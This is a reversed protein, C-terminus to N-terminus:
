RGAPGRTSCTTAPSGPRADLPAGAHELHGPWGADLGVRAARARRPARLGRGAVATRGTRRGAPRRRPQGPGARRARARARDRGPRGGVGQRDRRPGPRHGAPVPAARDTWGSRAGRTWTPPRPGRCTSWRRHRRSSASTATTASSCWRHPRAATSWAVPAAAAECAVEVAAVLLPDVDVWRGPRRNARTLDSDDRFRSCTADIDAVVREALALAEALADARRVALYGYTGFADFRAADASRDDRDRGAARHPHRSPTRTGTSPGPPAAVRAPAAPAAPAAALRCGGSRVASSDRPSTGHGDDADVQTAAPAPVTRCDDSASRRGSGPRAESSSPRRHKARRSSAQQDALDRAALGMLCGTATLAAVGVGGTM